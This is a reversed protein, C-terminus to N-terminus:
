LNKIYEPLQQQIDQIALTECEWILDYYENELGEQIEQDLDQILSDYAKQIDEILELINAQRIIERHEPAQVGIVQIIDKSSLELKVQGELYEQMISFTLFDLAEEEVQYYFAPEINFYYQADAPLRELLPNYEPILEIEINDWIIENRYNHLLQIKVDSDVLELNNYYFYDTIYFETYNDILEQLKNNETVGTIHQELLTPTLIIENENYKNAATAATVNFLNKENKIM